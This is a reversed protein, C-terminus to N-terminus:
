LAALRERLAELLLGAFAGRDNERTTIEAKGAASLRGKQSNLDATEPEVPWLRFSNMVMYYGAFSFHWIDGNRDFFPFWGWNARTFVTSAELLELTEPNLAYVYGNQGYNAEGTKENFFVRLEGDIIAMVGRMYGSYGRGELGEAYIHAIDAQAAILGGRIKTVLVAAEWARVGDPDTRYEGSIRKTSLVYIEDRWALHGALTLSRDEFAAIFEATSKFAPVSASGSPPRAANAFLSDLACGCLPLLLLLALCPALFRTARGKSKAALFPKQSAFGAKTLNDASVTIDM